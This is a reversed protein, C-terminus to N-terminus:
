RALSPYPLKLDRSCPSVRCRPNAYDLIGLFGDYDHQLTDTGCVSVPPHPSFGLAVPYINTLSSPLFAPTGETYVKGLVKSIIDFFYQAAAFSGERSNVM